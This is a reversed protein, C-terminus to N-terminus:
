LKPGVIIRIFDEPLARDLGGGVGFGSALLANTLVSQPTEKEFPPMELSQVVLSIGRPQGGAREVSPFRQLLESSAGRLGESVMDPPIPRPSSVNWGVVSLVTWIEESLDHAESDEPQYVIEAKGALKGQLAKLFTEVPLKRPGQREEIRVRALREQETDRGLRAIIEGGLQSTRILSVLEGALGLILVLTSFKKLWVRNEESRPFRTFEGVYEGVVGLFVVATAVYAVIDWCDLLSRLATLDSM